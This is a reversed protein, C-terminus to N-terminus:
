HGPRAHNPCFGGSALDVHPRYREPLRTYFKHYDKATELGFKTEVAKCWIDAPAGKWAPTDMTGEIYWTVWGDTCMYESFLFGEDPHPTAKPM